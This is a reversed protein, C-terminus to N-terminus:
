TKIMQLCDGDFWEGKLRFDDLLKHLQRELLRPEDTKIIRELKLLFPYGTQIASLRSVPNNSVGIKVVGTQSCQMIYVSQQKRKKLPKSRQDIVLTTVERWREMTVYGLEVLQAAVKPNFEVAVEFIVSSPYLKVSSRMGQSTHIEATKVLYKPVDDLRRRLTGNTYSLVLMRAIARMHAYALGTSEDVWLELGNQEYKVLNMITEKIPTQIQVRM